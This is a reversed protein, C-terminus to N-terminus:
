AIKYYGAGLLFFAAVFTGVSFVNFVAMFYVDAKFFYLLSMSHSVGGLVYFFRWYIYYRELDRPVHEPATTAREWVARALSIFRNRIRLYM